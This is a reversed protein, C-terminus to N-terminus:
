FMHVYVWDAATCSALLCTCLVFPISCCDCSSYMYVFDVHMHMLVQVVEQDVRRTKPKVMRWYAVM